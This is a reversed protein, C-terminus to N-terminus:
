PLKIKKLINKVNIEFEEPDIAPYRYLTDKIKYFFHLLKQPKVYNKKIFNKVDELDLTHGREIKALVQSYFDYHYFSGSVHQSIFKSRTEWGPLEPIFDSPSVLEINMKLKEKAVPILKLIEDSDPIFKVDVDITTERFGLIVASAGGTFYAKFPSKVNEGLLEIFEKIKELSTKERM